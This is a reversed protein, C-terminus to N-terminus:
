TFYRIAPVGENKVNAGPHRASHAQNGRVTPKPDGMDVCQPSKIEPRNSNCEEGNIAARAM